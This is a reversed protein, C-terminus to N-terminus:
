YRYISISKSTIAWSIFANGGLSLFKLLIMPFGMFLSFSEAFNNESKKMVHRSASVYM